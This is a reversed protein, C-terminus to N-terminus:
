TECTAEYKGVFDMSKPYLNLNESDQTTKVFFMSSQKAGSKSRINERLCNRKIPGTVSTGLPKGCYQDMLALEKMM